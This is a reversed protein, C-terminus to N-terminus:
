TSRIKDWAKKGLLLKSWLGQGLEWLVMNWIKLVCIETQIHLNVLTTVPKIDIERDLLLAGQIFISYRNKGLGKDGSVFCQNKSHGLYTIKIYCLILQLPPCEQYRIRRRLSLDGIERIASIGSITLWSGCFLFSTPSPTWFIFSICKDNTGWEPPNHSM